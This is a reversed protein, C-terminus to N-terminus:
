SVMNLMNIDGKDGTIPCEASLVSTAKDKNDAHMPCEPPPTAQQNLNKQQHSTPLKDKNDAHMPCEPPPTPTPKSEEKTKNINNLADSSATTVISAGM